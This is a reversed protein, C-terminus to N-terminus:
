LELRSAMRGGEDARVGGDHVREVARFPVDEEVACSKV